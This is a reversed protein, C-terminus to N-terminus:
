GNVSGTSLGGIRRGGDIGAAAMLQRAKAAGIGPLARLLPQM